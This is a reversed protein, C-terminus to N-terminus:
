FSLVLLHVDFCITLRAECQYFDHDHDRDDAEKGCDGNGIEDFRARRSLHIGANVVQMLDVACLFLPSEFGFCGGICRNSQRVDGGIEFASGVAREATSVIGDAIHADERGAGVSSEAM